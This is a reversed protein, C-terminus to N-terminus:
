NFQIRQYRELNVIHKFNWSVLVDVNAVTVIAIHQCDALSTRGVVKETIYKEALNKEIDSLKVRVVNEISEFFDIIFTAGKYIETELVDSIIVQINILVVKDFFLKTDSDFEEDFYGGFVSTDIYIKRIM